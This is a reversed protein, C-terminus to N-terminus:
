FYKYYREKIIEPSMYHGGQKRRIDVNKINIDYNECGLFIANIKYGNNKLENFLSITSESTLLSEMVFSNGNKVETSVENMALISSKRISKDKDLGEEQLRKAIEDANIYKFESYNINSKIHNYYFTTKGSGNCGIIFNANKQSM